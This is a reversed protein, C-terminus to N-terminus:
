LAYEIGAEALKSAGIPMAAALNAFAKSAPVRNFARAKEIRFRLVEGTAYDWTAVGTCTVFDYLRHGLERAVSESTDCSLTKGSPLRLRVKPEEGGVRLVEGLISSKGRFKQDAPLSISYDFSAIVGRTSDVLSASCGRRKVFSVIEGFAQRAKPNMKDFRGTNIISAVDLWVTVGAIMAAFKLGLSKDQVEVLCLPLEGPEDADDDNMSLLLEEAALILAALEKCRTNAPAVGNGTFKLSIHEM